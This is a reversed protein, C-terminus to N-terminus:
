PSKDDRGRCFELFESHTEDDMYVGIEENGDMCNVGAMILNLTKREVGGQTIRNLINIGFPIKATKKNYNDWRTEYDEFYDHGVSTDFCISLADRLLDPIAGVDPVKRNREDIPLEANSQIEIARSMANYLARDQCFKETQDVLWQLDEPANCLGNILESTSEMEDQSISSKNGLDVLLANKTPTKEYKDYYKAILEFTIRESGRNFFEPKLHPHAQRFYEENFILNQFISQQIQQM